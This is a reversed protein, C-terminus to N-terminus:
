AVTPSSGHGMWAVPAMRSIINDQGVVAPIMDGYETMAICNHNYVCKFMFSHVFYFDASSDISRLVFHRNDQLTNASMFQL